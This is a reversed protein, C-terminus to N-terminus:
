WVNKIGIEKRWIVLFIILVPFLCLSPLHFRSFPFDAGKSLPPLRIDISLEGNVIHEFIASRPGYKLTLPLYHDLLPNALVQFSNQKVLWDSRIDMTNWDYALEEAPQLGLFNIVISITLLAIIVNKNTGDFISAIPLMLFPVIFLLYRNGFGYGGWWTRRMSIISLLFILNLIILITEAKHKRFMFIFGPFSLILVPSYFLLGRYPFFLLRIIIYFNPLTPIFHFHEIIQKIPSADFFAMTRINKTNSNFFSLLLSSVPYATRYLRRDIYSSALDFPNGFISYNYFLFPLISFFLGLLFIPSFRKSQWFSYAILLLTSLIALRDTVISFGALLGALFFYKSKKLKENKIKFLLFFSFFSLFTATPQSMFHLASPFTLTGMGYGMALLIGLAQSKLFYRSFKYVFVATLSSFISSTLATLLIMSTFTFFGPNILTFIQVDGYSKVLYGGSQEYKVKFSQPFYKYLLEWLKYIFSAIFSLGPEKDSYYHGEYFARDGTQNAFSDIEFRKEESIARTLAFNSEENWGYWQVFILYVFFLSFFIKLEVKM